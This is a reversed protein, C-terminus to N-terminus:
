MMIQHLKQEHQLKESKKVVYLHQIYQYAANSTCAILSPM